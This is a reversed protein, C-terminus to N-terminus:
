AWVAPASARGSERFRPDAMDVSGQLRQRGCTKASELQEREQVLQGWLMGLLKVSADAGQVVDVDNVSDKAGVETPLRPREVSRVRLRSWRELLKSAIDFGCIGPVSVVNGVERSWVQRLNQCECEGVAVSTAHGSLFDKEVNEGVTPIVSAVDALTSL